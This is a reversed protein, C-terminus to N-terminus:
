YTPDVGGMILFESGSCPVLMHDSLSLQGQGKQTTVKVWTLTDLTLFYIDSYIM